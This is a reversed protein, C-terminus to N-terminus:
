GADSYIKLTLTKPPLLTAVLLKLSTGAHKQRRSTLIGVAQDTDHSHRLLPLSSRRQHHFLTHTPRPLTPKATSPLFCAELHDQSSLTLALQSLFHGPKKQERCAMSGERYHQHKKETVRGEKEGLLTMRTM